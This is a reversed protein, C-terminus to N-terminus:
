TITKAVRSQRGFPCVCTNSVHILSVSYRLKSALYSVGAGRQTTYKYLLWLRAGRAFVDSQKDGHLVRRDVAEVTDTTPFPPFFNGPCFCM